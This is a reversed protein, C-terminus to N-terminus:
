IPVYLTIVLNLLYYDGCKAEAHHLINEGLLLKISSEKGRPPQFGIQEKLSM